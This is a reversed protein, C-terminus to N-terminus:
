RASTPKDWVAPAGLLLGSIVGLLAATQLALAQFAVHPLWWGRGRRGLIHGIFGALAATYAASQIIFFALYLPSAMLRYSALLAGFLFLLTCWRLIKHSLLQWFRFPKKLFHPLLRLTGRVGRSVIRRSRKFEDWLKSAAKETGCFEPEFVLSKGASAVLVPLHFDNAVDPLMPQWLNKSIALLGGAGVLVSGIRSEAWRLWAEYRWYVNSGRRVRDNEDMAEYPVHGAVFGIEPNGFWRACARLAQPQIITNADTFVLIEGRAMPALHNLALNKGVSEEFVTTEIAPHQKLLSATEDSSGDSVALIQLKERPYDLKELCALKAPLSAAENRASFLITIHPEHSDPGPQVSKRILGIVALILPYGIYVYVLSAACFWFLWISM